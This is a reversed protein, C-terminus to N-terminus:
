APQPKTDLPYRFLICDKALNNQNPFRWWEKLITEVVFGCKELVRASAQNDADVFSGIVHVDPQNRVLQIMKKTSETAYGNNWHLPGLVYGIQVKGDDNLFGCAGILRNIDKLRISFSYDIGQTWARRAYLLFDRTDKLSQHLPWSVYRTSAPKSAYTYFIEEADTLQLRTLILRETEVREPIVM